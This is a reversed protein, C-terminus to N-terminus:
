ILVHQRLAYTEKGLMDSWGVIPRFSGALPDDRELSRDRVAELQTFDKCTRTCAKNPMATRWRAPRPAHCEFPCSDKPRNARGDHATWEISKGEPLGILAAGIPTLVSVKGEAIDAEGPFVLTVTRDEGADTTFRLTSGMRVVDAAIRGDEVM